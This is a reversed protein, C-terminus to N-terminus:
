PVDGNDPWRAAAERTTGDPVGDVWSSWPLGLDLVDDPFSRWQLRITAFLDRPARGTAQWEAHIRALVFLKFQKALNDVAEMSFTSGDDRERRLQLNMADGTAPKMAQEFFERENM